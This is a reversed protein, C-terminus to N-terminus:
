WKLGTWHYMILGEAEMYFIGDKDAKIGSLWYSVFDPISDFGDASILRNFDIQEIEKGDVHVDMWGSGDPRKLIILDLLQISKLTHESTIKECSKNRLGTYMHLQEGLKPEVKRPNRITFKKSGDLIKPAFQKKFGLLM